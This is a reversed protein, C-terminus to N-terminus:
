QNRAHILNPTPGRILIKRSLAEQRFLEVVERIVHYIPVEHSLDFNYIDKEEAM